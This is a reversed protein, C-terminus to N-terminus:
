CWGRFWSTVTRRGRAFLTGCLLQLLRPASRPDLVRVLAAFWASLTAPLQSLLM